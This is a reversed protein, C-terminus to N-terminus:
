RAGFGVTVLFGLSAYWSGVQIGNELLPMRGGAGVLAVRVGHLYSHQSRAFDLALTATGAPFLGAIQGQAPTNGDSAGTCDIGNGNSDVCYKGSAGVHTASASAQVHVGFRGTIEVLRADIMVEGGLRLASYSARNSTSSTSSGYVVGGLWVDHAIAQRWGLYPEGPTDNERGFIRFGLIVNVPSILRDVDFLASLVPIGEGKARDRTSESLYFGPVFGTQVEGGPQGAPVASVGTTAPM